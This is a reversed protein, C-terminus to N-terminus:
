IGCKVAISRTMLAILFAIGFVYVTLLIIQFIRQGVDWWTWLEASHLSTPIWIGERDFEIVAEDGGKGAAEGM